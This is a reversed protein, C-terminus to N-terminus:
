MGAPAAVRSCVVPVGLATEAGLDASLILAPMALFSRGCAVAVEVWLLASDARDSRSSRRADSKRMM